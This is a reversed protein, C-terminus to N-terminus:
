PRGKVIRKEPSVPWAGSPMKAVGQAGPLVINQRSAEM